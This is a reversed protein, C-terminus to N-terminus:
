FEVPVGAPHPTYFIRQRSFSPIRKKLVRAGPWSVPTKPGSMVGLKGHGNGEGRIWVFERNEIAERVTDAQSELWESPIAAIEEDSVPDPEAVNDAWERFSRNKGSKTLATIHKSERGADASGLKPTVGGKREADEVEHGDGYGGPKDGNRFALLLVGGILLVLFSLKM